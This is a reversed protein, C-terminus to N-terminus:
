LPVTEKDFKMSLYLLVFNIRNSTGDSIKFSRYWGSTSGGSLKFDDFARLKKHWFTIETFSPCPTFSSPIQRLTETSHKNISVQVSNSKKAEKSQFHVGTKHWCADATSTSTSAARPSRKSVSCDFLDRQRKNAITWWTEALIMMLTHSRFRVM